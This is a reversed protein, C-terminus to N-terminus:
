ENFICLLRHALQDWSLTRVYEKAEWRMKSYEDYHIIVDKMASYLGDADPNCLLAYKGDGTQECLGGVSTAIIQAEAQMAIPIVGSQSASIYPLVVVTNENIFYQYVEEDPVFRNEIFVSDLQKLADYCSGMNGKGVIRLSIDYNEKKLKIYAASLLELGKYPEIRGFFLFNTKAQMPIANTIAKKEYYDFVGHPLTYINQDEFGLEDIIYKRFTDSLIIVKNSMKLACNDILKNITHTGEHPKPDHLTTVIESKKFLKNVLFTWPQIMPVYCVDIRTGKFKRKLKWYDFLVFRVSGIVFTIRNSYTKLTILEKLKLKKWMQLNDISEPIIAYVDCNSEILGKTMEYAYVMGGGKRGIYNVVINKGKNEVEHM